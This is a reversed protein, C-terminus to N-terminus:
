SGINARARYSHLSLVYWGYTSWYMVHVYWLLQKSSNGVVTQVVEGHWRRRGGLSERRAM